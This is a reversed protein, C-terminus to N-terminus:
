VQFSTSEYLNTLYPIQFRILVKWLRVHFDVPKHERQILREDMHSKTVDHM